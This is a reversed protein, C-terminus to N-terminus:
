PVNTPNVIILTASMYNVFTRVYTPGVKLNSILNLAM